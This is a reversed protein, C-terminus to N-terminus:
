RDTIRVESAGGSIEIAYRDAADGAGPSTLQTSGGLAGFHQEDFTLESAGGAVALTAPADRPRRISVQSAGGVIAVEVIGSPEPLVVEAEHVGGTIEFSRVAVGSLDARLKWTGRSFRIEWQVSDNLLVTAGHSDPRLWQSPSRRPYEITVRGDDGLVMPVAGDFHAHVLEKPGAGVAITIEAAGRGFELRGREASGLPAVFEDPKSQM